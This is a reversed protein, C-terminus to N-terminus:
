RQAQAPSVLAAELARRIASNAALSQRSSALAAVAAAAGLTAPLPQGLAVLVVVFAALVLFWVVSHGAAVTGCTWRPRLRAQSLLVSM